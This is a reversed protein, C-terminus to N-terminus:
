LIVCGSRKFCIDKLPASLEIDNRKEQVTTRYLKFLRELRSYRRQQSLHELSPYRVELPLSSEVIKKLRDYLSQIDTPTIFKSNIINEIAAKLEKDLKNELLMVMFKTLEDCKMVPDTIRMFSELAYDFVRHSIFEESLRCFEEDPNSYPFVWMIEAYQNRELSISNLHNKLNEIREKVSLESAIKYSEQKKFVRELVEEKIQFFLESIKPSFNFSRHHGEMITTPIYKLTMEILKEEFHDFEKASNIANGLNILEILDDKLTLEKEMGSLTKILENVSFEQPIKPNELRGIVAAFAGSYDGAAILGYPITNTLTSGEVEEQLRNLIIRDFLNGIFQLAEISGPDNDNNVRISLTSIEKQYEYIKTSTCLALEPLLKERLASAFPDAFRIFPYLTVDIEKRESQLNKLFEEMIREVSKKISPEKICNLGTNVRNWNIKEYTVKPISMNDRTLGFILGRVYDEHSNEM